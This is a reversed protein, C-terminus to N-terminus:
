EAERARVPDSFVRVSRLQIALLRSDEALHPGYDSPMFAIRSSLRLLISSRESARSALPVKFTITKGPRARFVLLPTRENEIHVEIRVMETWLSRPPVLVTLEVSAARPILLAAHPQLWRYAGQEDAQARHLGHIPVFGEHACSLILEDVRPCRDSQWLSPPLSDGAKKQAVLVGDVNGVYVWHTLLAAPLDPTTRAARAVLARLRCEDLCYASALGSLWGRREMLEQEPWECDPPVTLLAELPLVSARFGAGEAANVYFGARRAAEYLLAGFTERFSATEPRVKISLKGPQWWRALKHCASNQLRQIPTSYAGRVPEDFAFMAGGPRLVRSAERLVGELDLIHRLTSFSFVCDFSADRFPLAEAASAVCGFWPGPRKRLRVAFGLGVETDDQADSAVVEHGDEALARAAWGRGAGLELVRAPRRAALWARLWAFVDKTHPSEPLRLAETESLPRTGM